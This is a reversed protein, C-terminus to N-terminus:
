LVGANDWGKVSVGGNVGADVTLTGAFAASQERIECHTVFKQNHSRQDCSLSKEQTRQAMIPLAAICFTLAITRMEAGKIDFLRRPAAETLKISTSFRCGTSTRTRPQRSSFSM